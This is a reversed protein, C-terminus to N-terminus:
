LGGIATEVLQFLAYEDPECSDEVRNMALSVAAPTM